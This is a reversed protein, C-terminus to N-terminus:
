ESSNKEFSQAIERKRVKVNEKILRRSEARMKERDPASSNLIQRFIADGLEGSLNTMCPKRYRPAEDM